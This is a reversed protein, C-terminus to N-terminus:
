SGRSSIYTSILNSELKISIIDDEGRARVAPIVTKPFAPTGEELENRKKHFPGVLVLFPSGFLFKAASDDLGVDRLLLPRVRLLRQRLLRASTHFFPPRRCRRAAAPPSDREM